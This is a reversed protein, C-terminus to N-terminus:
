TMEARRRTEFVFMELILLAFALGLFWPFREIYVRFVLEENQAQQLKAIEALIQQIESIGTPNAKYAGGGTAQAIKSLTSFDLKTSVVKGSSDVKYSSGDPVPVGQTTGIGICFIRVHARAATEAMQLAYGGFDEGDTLVVVVKDGRAAVDFARLAVEIARGIDTGPRSVADTDLGDLTSLAMSYDTTLPCVIAADGAFAIIGVRDGKLSWIINQLLERARALRNPKYDQALMSKSVDVAIFLDIGSSVIRKEEFGWQPRAGAIIAALLAALFLASALLKRATSRALALRPLLNATAFQGALRHRRRERWYLAAAVLPLGFVLLLFAPTAFRM